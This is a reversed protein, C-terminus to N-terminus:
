EAQPAGAEHAVTVVAAIDDVVRVREREKLAALNIVMDLDRAGLKVAEAAEFRKVSTFAAGAPFGIPVGPLISTGRLQAVAVSLLAPQVFVAAFGYYAAEACAREVDRATADPRLQTHDILAAVSRWDHLAHLLDSGTLLSSLSTM